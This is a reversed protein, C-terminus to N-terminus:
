YETLVQVVKAALQAQLAQPVQLELLALLVLIDPPESLVTEEM